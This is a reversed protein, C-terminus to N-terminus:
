DGVAAMGELVVLTPTHAIGQARSTEVVFRLRAEDVTRWGELLKPFPRTEGVANRVGTLHQVDDIRAAEFPVTRPVHGIVPLGRAHASEGLAALTGPTLGEYAKVCDFGDRAIM